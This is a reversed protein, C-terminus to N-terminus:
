KPVVDMELQIFQNARDLPRAIMEHVEFVERILFQRAELLLELAQAFTRVGLLDYLAFILFRSKLGFGFLRTLLTLLGSFTL